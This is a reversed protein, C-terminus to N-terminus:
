SLFPRILAMGSGVGGMWAVRPDFVVRKKKKNAMGKNRSLFACQPQCRLM